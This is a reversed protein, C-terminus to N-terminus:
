GKTGYLFIRRCLDCMRSEVGGRVKFKKSLGIRDSGVDTYYSVEADVANGLANEFGRGFIQIPQM